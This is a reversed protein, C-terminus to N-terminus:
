HFNTATIFGGTIFLLGLVLYKNDADGPLLNLYNAVIVVVGLALLTFMLIPVWLPSVRQHHPIPPTYRNSANPSPSRTGTSDAAGTTGKRPTVRSSGKRREAV